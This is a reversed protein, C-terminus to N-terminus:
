SRKARKSRKVANSSCIPAKRKKASARVPKEGSLDKVGVSYHVCNEAANCVYCSLSNFRLINPNEKVWKFQHVKMTGSFATLSSPVIKDIKEIDKESVTRVTVNKCHQKLAEVAKVFNNIDDGHAVCRDLIRKTSGGIGDAAGKGHGAESYNYIITRINPYMESVHSAILYFMTKNRYQTSPGDSLFHLNKIEPHESLVEDLIPKLHAIVSSADHRLSESVTVFGRSFTKTYIMGTHLTLMARSGGFHVSQPESAYKCSYNESFDM